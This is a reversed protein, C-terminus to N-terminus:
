REEEEFPVIRGDDDLKGISAEASSLFARCENVLSQGERYLELTKDLPLAGHEMANLIEELRAIKESYNM